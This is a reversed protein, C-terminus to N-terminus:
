LNNEYWLWLCQECGWLGSPRQPTNVRKLEWSVGVGGWVGVGGGKEVMPMEKPVLTM